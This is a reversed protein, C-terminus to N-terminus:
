FNLQVGFSWTKLPPLYGTLIFEPDLGFYDTFTLLNQGQIYVLVDQVYKNVSLRYSLQINKLRIFSADGIAATSNKFYTFLKNKHSNAGTTYPMYQGEPNDESWVNLVEIPQNNINGPRSILSNYNWQQQNVFQILFSFEWHKYSFQNSLGGFYKIGIEKIALNDEPTSISGDENYDTFTYLGTEPDIGEYNYVKAISTSHGVVYTDSYTSGALGPFSVLKNKPFSINVNSNWQFNDTKVPTTNIEFELGTNQVTAPLNAQISSFGTTAPLPIGVLQNGSRNRYWAATFYIRDNLFGTELAVELKTTKEWSFYPNYLRSPYLSTNGGYLTSSVTYTDLYQYDGILDSGTIGYSTRFKGFSLWRNDKLFSEKSFLWAAGIAGFNAFRKDPGFRSSGDRRGTINLIYRNKYQYNIRGFMAAYRYKTINDQSTSVNSAASLNSILSNSEFGVGLLRLITNETQQYTGGALM